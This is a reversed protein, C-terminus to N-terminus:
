GHSSLGCHRGALWGTSFAAQLNFGGTDAAIDLVEGSFYLGHVLKSEMTRPNIERTDVGGATIIAEALPQHGTVPLCFDKLWMLLMRRETATIQHCLKDGNIGTLEICVPILKRPLLEKLYTKFYKKGQQAFDRLLRDELKAEDLAPKLDISVAVSQNSRLADVANGSLSLIIPGSVGFHTFIMEGMATSKKKGNVMVAATVNRLSLGQLKSSCTGATELPILAPRIPIVTHGASEALRYGDGSSGTAPYSAGGTAIIVHDSRYIQTAVQSSPPNSERTHVSSVSVGRIIGNEIILRQVPSETVVAVGRRKVLSALADVVDQAKESAPFVRGGREVVTRVGIKEFFDILDESFFRSFAQHLFRGNRGFHDIFEPLSVINTLNCRGKGTIRLKRGPRDMKELLLTKAGMEASQAAAILGAAGGGVVTVDYTEM